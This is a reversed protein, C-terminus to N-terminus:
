LGDDISSTVGSYPLVKSRYIMLHCARVDFACPKVRQVAQRDSAASPLGTYPLDGCPYFHGTSGVVPFRRIPQCQQQLVFSHSRKKAELFARDIIVTTYRAANSQDTWTLALYDNAELRHTAPARTRSRSSTSSSVWSVSCGVQRIHSSCVQYNDTAMYMAKTEHVPFMRTCVTKLM